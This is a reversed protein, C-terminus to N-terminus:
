LPLCLAFATSFSKGCQIHDYGETTKTLPKVRHVFKLRSLANLGLTQGRNYETPAESIRGYGGSECTLEWRM